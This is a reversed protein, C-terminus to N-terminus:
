YRFPRNKLKKHWEEVTGGRELFKRFKKDQDLPAHIGGATEELEEDSLDKTDVPKKDQDDM